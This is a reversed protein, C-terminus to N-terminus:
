YRNLFKSFVFVLVVMPTGVSTAFQTLPLVAGLEETGVYIPVLWLGVFANILDGCRLAFFMMISFWWLDGIRMHLRSLFSRM